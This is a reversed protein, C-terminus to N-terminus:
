RGYQTFVKDNEVSILRAPTLTRDSSVSSFSGSKLRMEAPLLFHKDITQASPTGEDSDIIQHYIFCILVILYCRGYESNCCM